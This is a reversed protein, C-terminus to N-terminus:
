YTQISYLSYERKTQVSLVGSGTAPILKQTKKGTFCLVWLDLDLAISM